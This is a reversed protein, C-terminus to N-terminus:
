VGMSKKDCSIYTSNIRSLHYNTNTTKKWRGQVVVYNDISRIDKPPSSIEDIESCVCMLGLLFIFIIAM